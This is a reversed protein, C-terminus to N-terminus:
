ANARSAISVEVSGSPAGPRRARRLSGSPAGPRRAAFSSDHLEGLDQAPPDRPVEEAREAPGVHDRHRAADAAQV